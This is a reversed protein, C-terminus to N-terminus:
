QQVALIMGGPSSVGDVTAVLPWNGNALSTPVQIAVQYLGAYGPALAAGYVTAPVNNITVTVPTSSSYTQDSPTVQGLLTAPTTPGFGTGWLVLVDGPKAPVTTLGAITGNPVAYSYDLRTAIVQNGGLLFFAPAAQNVGVTLSSASQFAGNNIVQVSTSGLALAPVLVNIQTSSVYSIYGPVDGFTVTVGDLSAPLRGGVISSNWTDTKSSLNAGEITVYSGPAIGTGAQFSAGNVVGGASIAPAPTAMTATLVLKVAVTVPTSYGPTTPTFTVTGTYTGPALTTGASNVTSISVGFSQPTTGAGSSPSLWAGGGSTTASVAFSLTPGTSSVTVIQEPAGANGLTIGAFYLSAASVSLGPAAAGFTVKRIESRLHDAIYLNGSTDVALGSPEVVAETPLGGNGIAGAEGMGAITTINGSTDIKRVRFNGYDAVYVNGSGDVAVGELGGAFEASIAPGGDGSFGMTGNGAITTINGSTDVKRVRPGYLANGAESIYLNGQSDVAVGVPSNLPASTAPGGNGSYGAVGTGAVTSIIGATNVKRVRLGSTDAIYLNGQSDVALGAPVSLGSSTAAVGDGGSGGGAFTSITGSPNVKRVKKTDSIYLNGGADVAVGVFAAANFGFTASTAPGGDGSGGFTASLNGAVTSIIGAANVKRIVFNGTDAFYFDGANDVAVGTPMALWASVAPGGDGYFSQQGTGAVSTIVQANAITAAAVAFFLLGRNYM